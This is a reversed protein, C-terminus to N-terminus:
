LHIRGKILIDGSTGSALERLYRRRLNHLCIAAITTATGSVLAMSWGLAAKDQFFYDTLIGTMTPAYALSLLNIALLYVASMQARMRAPTVLMLAAGAAGFPAASLALMAAIAAMAAPVSSTFPLAAIPLVNLLAASAGLRITGDLTGGKVLRDAILSGIVIGATSFVILAGGIAYAAEAPPLGFERTLYPRAWLLCVHTTVGCLGFGIFHLSFLSPRERLRRWVAAVSARFGSWNAAGITRVNPDRSPERVTTALLAVLLGPAGVVFFVIQWNRMEGLIPVVTSESQGVFAVVAGGIAIAIGSGWFVGVQFIGLAFSRREPPFYDSILSYAAPSLGAEGIGVGVRAMFLHGFSRALGCAMTMVSWVVICAAILKTRNVRDALYGIPIGLTVYFVAFAFGHLLAISTDNIQLDRQIPEIMTTLIARDIFSVIYAIVLVSLCYWAGAKRRKLTPASDTLQQGELTTAGPHMRTDRQRYQM